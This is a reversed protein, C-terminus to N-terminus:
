ATSSIARSCESAFQAGTVECLQQRVDPRELRPAAFEQFHTTRMAPEEIERTAVELDGADFGIRIDAARAAAM